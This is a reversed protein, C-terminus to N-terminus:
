IFSYSNVFVCKRSIIRRYKRTYLLVYLYYISLLNTIKCPISSSRYPYSVNM